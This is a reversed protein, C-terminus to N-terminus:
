DELGEALVSEVIKEVGQRFVRSETARRVFGGGLKDFLQEGRAELEKADEALAKDVGALFGPVFGSLDMGTLQGGGAQDGGGGLGLMARILKPDGQTEAALDAALQDMLAGAMQQTQIQGKLQDFNIFQKVSEDWLGQQFRRVVEAAGAQDLGYMAAWEQENAGGTGHIAVSQLRFIAEFAGNAGPANPDEGGGPLLSGLGISDRIAGDLAGKFEGQFDRAADTMARSWDSAASEAVTKNSQALFEARKRDAEQQENWARSGVVPKPAPATSGRGGAMRETLGLDFDYNRLSGAAAATAAVERNAEALGLLKIRTIDADEGMRSVGVAAYLSAKAQEYAAAAADREAKAWAIVADDGEELAYTLERETDALWSAATHLQNVSWAVEDASDGYLETWSVLKQMDAIQRDLNGGADSFMRPNGRWNDRQDRLTLLEQLQARQAELRVAAENSQLAQGRAIEESLGNMFSAVGGLAQDLNIAKAAEVRLNEWASTVKDVSSAAEVGAAEVADLKEGGIELVANVYAQERSLGKNAAMLEDIRQRVRGSSIGFTDLREISQNALMANWSGMREEVSLTKDGLLVAMRTLEYVQDATEALGMGLLQAAMRQADMRSVGQDTADVLADTAAKAQGASGAYATLQREVNQSQQRLQNMEIGLKGAGVIALGLGAPGAFRSLGLGLGDFVGGTVQGFGQVQMHMRKLGAEAQTTEATVVAKITAGRTAM